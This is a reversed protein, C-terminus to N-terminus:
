RRRPMLCTFLMLLLRLASMDREDYRERVAYHCRLLTIADLCTEHTDRCRCGDVIRREYCCCARPLQIAYLVARRCRLPARSASMEADHRRPEFYAYM